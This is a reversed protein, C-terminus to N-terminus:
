DKNTIPWRGGHKLKSIGPNIKVLAGNAIRTSGFLFGYASSVALNDGHYCALVMFYVVQATAIM